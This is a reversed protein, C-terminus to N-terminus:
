SQPVWRPPGEPMRSVRQSAVVAEEIRGTMEANTAEAKVVLNAGITVRM